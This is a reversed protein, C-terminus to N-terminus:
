ILLRLLIFYLRCKGWAKADPLDDLDDTEEIDSDLEKKKVFRTVLDNARELSLVGTEEDSESDFEKSSLAYVQEQESDSEKQRGTLM